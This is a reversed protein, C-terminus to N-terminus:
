DDDGGGSGKQLEAKLLFSNGSAIEDGSKLGSRVETMGGSETGTTVTQARFGEKTRVFVSDNGNIKQLAETPVLLTTSSAKARRVFIRASVLQGPQLGRIDGHPSLVVTAARSQLNIDPTIARVVAAISGQPLDITAQDGIAIRQADSSPVAAQVELKTPDAIQFLETGAVVYAGLMAPAATIRGSIPSLINLSVGDASLGSANSSSSARNLEAQAVKWESKATDYDQASTANGALLNKQRAYAQQARVFRAQAAARDGALRAAERSQIAGLSDGQVVSDGLRKRILTVTGDARAGIIAAGSPTAAVTAQAIIQENLGGAAVHSLQIHADEIRTADLKLETNASDADASSSAKLPGEARLMFHDMVIGLLVAIVLLAVFVGRHKPFDSMRPSM